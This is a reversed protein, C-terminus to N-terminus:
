NIPPLDNDSPTHPIDSKSPKKDNMGFTEKFSDVSQKAANSIDNQLSDIKNNAANAGDRALDNGANGFNKGAKLGMNTGNIEDPNLNGGEKFKAPYPEFRDKNKYGSLESAVKAKLDGVRSSNGAPKSGFGAQSNKAGFGQSRATKNESSASHAMAKNAQSPHLGSKPIQENKIPM